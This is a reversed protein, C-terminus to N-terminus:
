DDIFDINDIVRFIVENSVNFGTDTLALNNDKNVILHQKTLEDIIRQNISFSSVLNLSEINVGKKLRLGMMFTDKIYERIGLSHNILTDSKLSLLKGYQKISKPNSWRYYKGEEIDILSSHAGPGIGLYSDSNWYLLNHRSEYLPKSYNSIEYQEIGIQNLQKKTLDMMDLFINDSVEVIDGRDRMKWFATSKEITLCYTSVHQIDLEKLHLLEEEWEKLSEKDVGFIFDFSLNTFGCDSIKRIFYLNSEKTSNRGLIKLKKNNFSQIGVSLRNIGLDKFLVPEEVENDYPNIELAIECDSEVLFLREIQNLIKKLLRPPLLSPTGGGFHISVLKKDSFLVSKTRLEDLLFSVLEDYDASSSLYVNFNCFPCITKCFPIHIYIGFKNSM